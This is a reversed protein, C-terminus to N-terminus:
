LTKSKRIPEITKEVRMWKEVAKRAFEEELDNHVVYVILGDRDIVGFYEIYAKTIEPDDKIYLLLNNQAM